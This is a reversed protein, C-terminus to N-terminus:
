ATKLEELLDKIEIAYFSGIQEDKEYDYLEYGESFIDIDAVITDTVTVHQTTSELERYQVDYEFECVFYDTYGGRIDGCLHVCFCIKNGKGDEDDLIWFQLDNCINAGNNYTNYGKGYVMIHRIEEDTVEIEYDKLEELYELVDGCLVDERINGNDDFIWPRHNKDMYRVSKVQEIVKDLRSM